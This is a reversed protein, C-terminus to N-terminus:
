SKSGGGGLTSTKGTNAWAKSDPTGSDGLTITMDKGKRGKFERGWKGKVIFGGGLAQLTISCSDAYAEDEVSRPELREMLDRVVSFGPTRGQNLYSVLRFLSRTGDGSWLTM